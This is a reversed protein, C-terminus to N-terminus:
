TPAQDLLMGLYELTSPDAWHLDECVMLMPQSEAEELLWGVLNDLVQQKLVEPGLDLTPYQGEPLSVSLFSALIPVVEAKPQSYGDLMRELKDQHVEPSDGSQWDMVRKIHGVVPYMASNKHYDSCRMVARRSGEDRLQARLTDVLASKGIGPEGNLLVAQGLGEKSQQWARRLLGLEEDRGVLIPPSTHDEGGDDEEEDHVGLVTAAQVPEGIGKLEQSGLDRFSFRDAVLSKTIPDIVIANPEALGQLRAALNPAEGVALKPVSADGAGTQGVVVPGTAIGIRVALPEPTDLAAVSDVMELSARVAREADDGHATPWGFYTMIGDGLYQAVHGDYRAIVAGAERQYVQMLDRMDEPDLKESLSTSGVMDCFMITIQRREAERPHDDPVHAQATTTARKDDAASESDGLDRAAKLVAKRPGMPLGLDKLDPDTLEPVYELAIEEAEFADAYRGLGLEELWQRIDSM